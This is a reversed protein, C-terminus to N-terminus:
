RRKHSARSRRACSTLEEIKRSLTSSMLIAIMSVCREDSANLELVGEKYADGLLQHALCHISTTKGIGPMGQLPWLWETSIDCLNCLKRVSIIIHPMNGDKAIVKLREITDNNGVIDDLLKPRFKEVWPLEYPVDSSNGNAPAKGKAASSAMAFPFSSSLFSSPSPSADHRLSAHCVRQHSFNAVGRVNGIALLKGTM